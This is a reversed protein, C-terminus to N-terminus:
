SLRFKSNRSEARRRERNKKEIELAEEDPLEHFRKTNSRSRLSLNPVQFYSKLRGHNEFREEKIEKEKKLRQVEKEEM